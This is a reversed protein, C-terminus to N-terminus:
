KWRYHGIITKNRTLADEEKLPFSSHHIIYPIGRSNRKDSIIAIHSPSFVVIDSPQWEAIEEVNLTLSTAHNKFFVNLNKVRRFDINPDPIDIDYLDFNNEIDEDILQKLDYGASQFAFWIVDTCVSYEDTPYGGEYYNSKYKLDSQVYERAGLLIDHADDIGDYDEDNPSIYEEINFDSSSYVKKPIFNWINLFSFLMFLLSFLAKLFNPKVHFVGKLKMLKM